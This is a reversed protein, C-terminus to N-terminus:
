TNAVRGDVGSFPDIGFVEGLDQGNQINEWESWPYNPDDPLNPNEPHVMDGVRVQVTVQTNEPTDNDWTLSLWKVREGPALAPSTYMANEKYNELILRFPMDVNQFPQTVVGSLEEEDDSMDARFAWSNANDWSMNVPLTYPGNGATNDLPVRYYDYRTDGKTRLYIWHNGAALTVPQDLTIRYWAPTGGTTGVSEIPIKFRNSPPPADGSCIDAAKLMHGESWTSNEIYVYLDSTPLGHRDVPVEFASITTDELIQFNEGWINDSELYSNSNIVGASYCNEGDSYSNYMNNDGYDGIDPYYISEDYLKFAGHYPNGWNTGDAFTLVFVPEANYLETWHPNTDITERTWLVVSRNENGVGNDKWVTNHPETYAVALYDWDNPEIGFDQSVDVVLHYVTGKTLTANFNALWTTTSVWGSTGAPLPSNNTVTIDCVNSGPVKESDRNPYIKKPDDGVKPRGHGDDYAFWIYAHYQPDQPNGSNYMFLSASSVTVDDPAVFRMSFSYEYATLLADITRHTKTIFRNGYWNNDLTIYGYDDRNPDNVVYINESLGNESRWMGEEFDWRTTDAIVRIASQSADVTSLTGALKPAYMSSAGSSISAQFNVVDGLEIGQLDRQLRTLGVLLAETRKFEEEGSAAPLERVIWAALSIMVVGVVLISAVAVWIGKEDLVPLFRVGGM